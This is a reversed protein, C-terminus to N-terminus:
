SEASFIALAKFLLQVVTEFWRVFDKLIFHSCIHHIGVQTQRSL